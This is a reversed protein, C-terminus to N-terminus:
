ASVAFCACALRPADQALPPQAAGRHRVAELLGTIPPEGRTRRVIYAALLQAGAAPRLRRQEPVWLCPTPYSDGCNGQHPKVRRKHRGGRNLMSVKREAARTLVERSSPGDQKVQEHDDEAGAANQQHGGVGRETVADLAAM